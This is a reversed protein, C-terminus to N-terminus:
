ECPTDQPDPGCTDLPRPTLGFSEVTPRPTLNLDEVTPRPTPGFGEVTAPEGDGLLFRVAARQKASPGLRARRRAPRCRRKIYVALMMLYLVAAFPRAASAGYFAFLRGRLVRLRAGVDALAAEGRTVLTIIGDRLDTDQDLYDDLLQFAEGLEMILEREAVSM